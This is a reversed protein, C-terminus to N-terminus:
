TLKKIIANYALKIIEENDQGHEELARLFAKDVDAKAAGAALGLVEHADFDHGNFQFIVNLERVNNESFGSLKSQSETQRLVRGFKFPTQRPRPRYLMYLVLAVTVFILLLVLDQAKQEVFLM